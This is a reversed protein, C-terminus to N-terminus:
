LAINGQKWKSCSNACKFFFFSLKRYLWSCKLHIYKLSKKFITSQDCSCIIQMKLIVVRPFQKEQPVTFNYLCHLFLQVRAQGEWLILEIVNLRILAKKHLDDPRLPPNVLIKYTQRGKQEEKEM